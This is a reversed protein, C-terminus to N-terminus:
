EYFKPLDSPAIIGVLPSQAGGSATVLICQLYKGRAVGERHDDIGKM